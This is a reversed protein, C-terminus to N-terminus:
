FLLRYFRGASSGATPDLVTFRTTAPVNTAIDVWNTFSGDTNAQLYYTQNSVVNEATVAFTGNTLQSAPLLLTPSFLDSLDAANAADRLYPSVGFITQMTRLTSSHTYHNTSQYGGGKALSSLVIMGLNGQPSLFDDEDWTIFLAGNNQYAPSALIKPVETSLWADGVAPGGDHMSYWLGPSIISFRSVTQNTLDGALEEYPRM